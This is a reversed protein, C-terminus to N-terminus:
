IGKRSHMCPGTSRAMSSTHTSSTEFETHLEGRRARTLAAMGVAGEDTSGEDERGRMQSWRSEVEERAAEAVGLSIGWGAQRVATAGM